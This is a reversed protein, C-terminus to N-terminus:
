QRPRPDFELPQLITQAREIVANCSFSQESLQYLFRPRRDDAEGRIQNAFRHRNRWFDLSLRDSRMGVQAAQLEKPATSSRPAPLSPGSRKRQGHARM